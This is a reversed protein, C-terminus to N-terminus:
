KTTEKMVAPIPWLIEIYGAEGSGPEGEEGLNFNIADTGLATALAQLMNFTILGWVEFRIGEASARFDCPRRDFTALITEVIEKVKWVTAKTPVKPMSM